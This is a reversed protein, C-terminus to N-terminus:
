PVRSKVFWYLVLILAVGLTVGPPLTALFKSANESVSSIYPGSDNGLLIGLLICLVILLLGAEAALWGIKRIRETM